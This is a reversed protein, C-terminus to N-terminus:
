RFTDKARRVAAFVQAPAVAEPLGMARRVAPEDARLFPNTAKEIGLPGPVTPLGKARMAEVHQVRTLLEANGTELTRAFRANGQTYEHACYVQAADPLARLKCLSAWMQEPSGEFLRGCGLLFLTDGCFLAEDQEFWYSVHGSTHGPTEIVRAAHAGLRVVDGEAVPQDLGPLRAADGAFGVVRAGFEQKLALNGGVHDAHHHTNLIHTLRWGRQALRDSVPAAEAPDVAATAGSAPDHLLWVYNDDLVLVSDIELKSM